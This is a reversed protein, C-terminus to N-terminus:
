GFPRLRMEERLSAAEDLLYNHGDILKRMTGEVPTNPASNDAYKLGPEGLVNDIAFAEPAITDLERLFKRLSEAGHNPGIKSIAIVGGRRPRARARRVQVVRNAPAPM